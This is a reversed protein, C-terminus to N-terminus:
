VPEQFEWIFGHASKRKHRCSESIHAASSLGLEDVISQQSLWIRIINGQLDKQVIPKNHQVSRRYIGSGWNVNEKPSMLNLNCLRNDTKDENIHNVQMGDPIPGNFAEWVLRHVKYIKCKRNKWLGVHLYNRSKQPTLIHEKGTHNYNLSKIRGYDSVEYIGSHGLVPIWRENLYQTTYM